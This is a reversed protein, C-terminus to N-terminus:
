ARRAAGVGIDPRDHASDSEGAHEQRQGHPRRDRGDIRGPHASECGAPQQTIGFRVHVDRFEIEGRVRCAIAAVGTGRDDAAAADNRRHAGAFRTGRQMLNVVWGLAIMPWVLMGMYSNFMVFKGLSISGTLVRAGGAWLVGLFGIGILAQLVPMFMGQARALGINERIYERNLLKSVGCRPTKRCM